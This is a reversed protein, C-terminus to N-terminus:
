ELDFREDPVNNDKKYRVAEGDMWKKAFFFCPGLFRYTTRGKSQIVFPVTGGHLSVILDDLRADKNALIASGYATSFVRRNKFRWFDRVFTRLYKLDEKERGESWVHFTGTEWVSTEAINVMCHSRWGSPPVLIGLMQLIGYM